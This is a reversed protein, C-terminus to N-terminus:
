GGLTEGSGLITSQRGSSAMRQEVARRSAKKVADDDMTPMTPAATVAPMKLDPAKPASGFMSKATAASSLLTSGIGVATTVTDTSM